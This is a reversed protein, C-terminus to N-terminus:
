AAAEQVPGTSTTRRRLGKRDFGELEQRLEGSLDADNEAFETVVAQLAQGALAVRANSEALVSVYNDRLVQLINRTPHLLPGNFAADATGAGDILQARASETHQAIEPLYRKRVEWLDNIRISLVSM